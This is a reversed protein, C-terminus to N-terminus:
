LDSSEREVDEPLTIVLRGDGTSVPGRHRNEGVVELPPPMHRFAAGDVGAMASGVAAGGIKGFSRRPSAAKTQTSKDGMRENHVGERVIPSVLAALFVFEV